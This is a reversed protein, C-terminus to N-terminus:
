CEDANAYIPWEDKPPIPPIQGREVMADHFQMLRKTIASQVLMEIDPPLKESSMM